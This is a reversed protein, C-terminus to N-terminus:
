PLEELDIKSFFEDLRLHADTDVGTVQFHNQLIWNGDSCNWGVRKRPDIFWINQIGFGRFEEIKEQMRSHSDAPSLVEIAVLFPHTFVQEIQTSRDFVLVDPIRVRSGGVQTRQEQIARIGWQKGHQNFWNVIALQVLNHDYEGVNREEIVGDVYEADPEFTSALYTELSTTTITAM